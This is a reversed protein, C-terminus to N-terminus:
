GRSGGVGGPHWAGFMLHEERPIDEDETLSYGM